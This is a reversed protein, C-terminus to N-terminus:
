GKFSGMPGDSWPIFEVSKLIVYLGKMLQGRVEREYMLNCPGSGPRGPLYKDGPTQKRM